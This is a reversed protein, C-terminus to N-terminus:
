RGTSITYTRRRAVFLTVAIAIIFPVASSYPGFHANPTPLAEAVGILVGGILTLFLYRFQGVVVAALAPIVLFAQAQVELVTLDALFLAIVGSLAGSVFWALIEVRRARVGLMASLERDNALARMATGTLSYRLFLFTAVTIVVALVLALVQTDSVHVTGIDFGSTSTPLSLSRSIDTWYWNAGGIIALVLGLTATAKVAPERDALYPGLIAGYITSIVAAVLVCVAFAPWEGWGNEILQWAILAGLGGIAGYALNLVGTTRYLILM